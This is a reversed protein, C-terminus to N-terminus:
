EAFAPADKVKSRPLPKSGGAMQKEERAEDFMRGDGIVEAVLEKMTAAIRKM